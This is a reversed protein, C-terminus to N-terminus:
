FSEKLEMAVYIDGKREKTLAEKTWCAIKTDRRQDVSELITCKLSISNKVSFSKTKVGLRNNKQRFCNKPTVSCIGSNKEIRVIPKLVKFINRHMGGEKKQFCHIFSRQSRHKWICLSLPQCNTAINRCRVFYILTKSPMKACKWHPGAVRILREVWYRIWEQPSFSCIFFIRICRPSTVLSSCTSM